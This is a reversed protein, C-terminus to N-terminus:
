HAQYRYYLNGSKDVAFIRPLKSKPNYEVSAQRWVDGGAHQAWNGWKGSFTGKRVKLTKNKALATLIFRNDKDAALRPAASTSWGSSQKRWTSWKGTSSNYRYYM